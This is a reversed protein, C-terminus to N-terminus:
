KKLLRDLMKMAIHRNNRLNENPPMIFSLKAVAFGEGKNINISQRILENEAEQKM